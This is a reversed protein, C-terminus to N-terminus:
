LCIKILILDGRAIYIILVYTSVSKERDETIKVHKSHHLISKYNIYVINHYNEMDISTM